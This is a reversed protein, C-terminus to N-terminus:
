APGAGNSARAHRKRLASEIRRFSALAGPDISYCRRNGCLRVRVWGARRRVRLHHSLTPQSRDCCSALDCAAVEPTAALRLLIALRGPNAAAALLRADAELDPM